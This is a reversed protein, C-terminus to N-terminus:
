GKYAAIYAAAHPDRGLLVMAARWADMMPEEKPNVIAADLGAELAM